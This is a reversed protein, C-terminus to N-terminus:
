TPHLPAELLVLSRCNSEGYLLPGSKQPFPSSIPIVEELAPLAM